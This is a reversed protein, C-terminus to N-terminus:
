PRQGMVLTDIKQILNKLSDSKEFISVSRLNNVTSISATQAASSDILNIAKSIEAIGVSQENSATNIESITKEVKQINSIITSIINQFDNAQEQGDQTNRLVITKLSYLKSSVESITKDVKSINQSILGSIERSTSGSTTALNGVEEAVVSFGKGQEGVKKLM